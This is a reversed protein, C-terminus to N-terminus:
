TRPTIRDTLGGRLWGNQFGVAAQDTRQMERQDDDSDEVAGAADSHQDMREGM